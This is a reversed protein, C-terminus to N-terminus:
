SGPAPENANPGAAPEDPIEALDALDAEIDPRRDLPPTAGGNIGQLWGDRIAGLLMQDSVHGVPVPAGDRDELNWEVMHKGVFAALASSYAKLEKSTAMPLALVENFEFLEDITLRGMTVEIDALQPHEFALRYDPLQAM